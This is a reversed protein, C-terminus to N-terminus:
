ANKLQDNVKALSDTYWVIFSMVLMEGGDELLKLSERIIRANFLRDIFDLGVGFFVFIGLFLFLANFVKKTDLDGRFYPISITSLFILGLAGAVALEGLDQLRLNSFSDPITILRALINTSLEGLSEHIRLMDDLLLFVFLVVWGSYAWNRKQAAVTVLALVIWLEQIYQFGEGIGLDTSVSFANERLIPLAAKMFPTLHFVHMVIFFLDAILLLQLFHNTLILTKLKNVM